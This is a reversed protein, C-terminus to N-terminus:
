IISWPPGLLHQLSHFDGQWAAQLLQAQPPLHPRSMWRVMKERLEPPSIHLATQQSFNCLTLDADTRLLQQVVESMAGRCAAILPTCGQEKDEKLEGKQVGDDTEGKKCGKVMEWDSMQKM